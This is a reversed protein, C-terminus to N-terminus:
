DQIKTENSLGELQHNLENIRELDELTKYQSIAQNLYDIAKQTEGLAQYLTGLEAAAIAQGEIDNPTALKIAQLYRSEALNALGVQWYLNGLTRFVGATQSGQEVLTELTKIAESKLDYQTYLYALSLANAEDDLKWTTLQNIATNVQQQQNEDLRKFGLGPVDEAFSFSGTDTEIKLSYYIGPKLPFEGTYIVFPENVQTRWENAGDSLRLTYQTAGPVPNWRLVPQDTLILTRRPSIIYPITPDNWAIEDGRDPCKAIDRTCQADQTEATQNPCNNFRSEGTKLTWLSLDACQIIVQGGDATQLQDGPYLPTGTTPRIVSGYSRKLQVNGLISIIQGNSIRNSTATAIPIKLLQSTFSITTLFLIFLGRAYIRSVGGWGEGVLLPLLSEEGYFFAEDKS